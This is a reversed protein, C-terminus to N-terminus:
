RLVSLEWLQAVSQWGGGLRWNRHLTGPLKECETLENVLHLDFSIGIELFKTYRECIDCDSVVAQTVIKQFGSEAVSGVATM